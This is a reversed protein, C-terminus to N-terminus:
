VARGNLLHSWATSTFFGGSHRLQGGKCDPVGIGAQETECALRHHALFVILTLRQLIYTPTAAFGPRRLTWDPATDLHIGAIPIKQVCLTWNLATWIDPSFWRRIQVSAALPRTELASRRWIHAPAVKACCGAGASAPVGADPYSQVNASNAVDGSDAPRHRCLTSIKITHEPSLSAPAQIDWFLPASVPEQQRAPRSM